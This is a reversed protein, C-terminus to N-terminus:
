LPVTMTPQGPRAMAQEALVLVGPDMAVVFRSWAYRRHRLATHRAATLLYGIGPCRPLYVRKALLTVFIESVVDEATAHDGLIQRAVSYMGWRHEHWLTEIEAGTVVDYRTTLGPRRRRRVFLCSSGHTGGRRQCEPCSGGLM